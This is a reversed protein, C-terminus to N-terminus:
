AARLADVVSKVERDSRGVRNLQELAEDLSSVIVTSMEHVFIHDHPNPPLRKLRGDTGREGLGDLVVIMPTEVAYAYGMEAMTGISAFTTSTLNMIIASSVRIDALDQQVADGGNDFTSPLRGPIRFQEKDRMPSLAIWDSPWDDRDIISERWDTAEDYTLGTIPGALYVFRM